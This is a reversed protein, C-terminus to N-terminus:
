WWLPNCYKWNLFAVGGPRLAGTCLFLLSVSLHQQLDQPFAQARGEAAGARMGPFPLSEGRRPNTPLSGSRGSISCGCRTGSQSCRM